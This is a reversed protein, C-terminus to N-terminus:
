REAPAVAADVDEAAAAGLRARARARPQARLRAGGIRLHERHCARAGLAGAAVAIAVFGPARAGCWGM